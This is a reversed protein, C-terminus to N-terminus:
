AAKGFRQPCTVCYWSHEWAARAEEAAEIQQRKVWTAGFGALVLLLGMAIAAGGLFIALLGALGLGVSLRYEMEPVEPPALRGHAAADKSLSEWYERLRWVTHSSGGPCVGSM